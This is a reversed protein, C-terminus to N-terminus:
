EMRKKTLPGTEEIKQKGVRGWRPDEARDDKDTAWSHVVDRPGFKKKFNPFEKESPYNPREPEEQANLHYTGLFSTSVTRRQSTSISIVLTTRESSGRRM